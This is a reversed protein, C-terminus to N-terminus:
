NKSVIVRHNVNFFGLTGKVKFPKITRINELPWAWANPYLKICAAKEDKRTMPRCDVLTAIAIAQGTPLNGIKPNASAVVLFDGRYNTKWVRTEITKEGTAVMSAWPQKLCIAKAKL